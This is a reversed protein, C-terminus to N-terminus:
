LPLLNNSELECFILDHLGIFLNRWMYNRHKHWSSGTILNYQHFMKRKKEIKESLNFMSSLIDHIANEMINHFKYYCANTFPGYAQSKRSIEACNFVTFGACQWSIEACNFIALGARAWLFETSLCPKSFLMCGQQFWLLLHFIGARSISARQLMSEWHLYNQPKCNFCRFFLYHAAQCDTKTQICHLRIQHGLSM